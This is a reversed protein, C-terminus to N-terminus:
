NLFDSKIFKRKKSFDMYVIAYDDNIMNAIEKAVEGWMEDGNEKNVRKYSQVNLKTNKKNVTGKIVVPRWLYNEALDVLQSDDLTATLAMIPIGLFDDKLMKFSEYCSRFNSTRDFIKHVEDLVLWKMLSKIKLLENKAKHVFYEPTTFTLPTLDEEVCTHLSQLAEASSLPGLVAFAIGHTKLMLNEVHSNILSITPCIVVIKLKKDFLSPLQFCISKGSATPQIIISDLTLQVAQTADKQFKKLPSHGFRALYGTWLVENKKDPPTIDSASIWHHANETGTMTISEEYLNLSHSESKVQSYEIDECPEKADEGAESTETNMYDLSRDLACCLDSNFDEDELDFDQQDILDGTIEACRNSNM